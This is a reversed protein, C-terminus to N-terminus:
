QARNARESARESARVSPTTTSSPAPVFCTVPAGESPAVSSARALTIDAVSAPSSDAEFAEVTSTVRPITYAEARYDPAGPVNSKTVLLVSAGGDEAEDALARVSLVMRSADPLRYGQVEELANRAEDFLLLSLSNSSTASSSAALFLHSASHSPLAAMASLPSSALSLTSSSTSYM